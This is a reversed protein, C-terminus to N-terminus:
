LKYFEFQHGRLLLNIVQGTSSCWKPNPLSIIESNYYITSGLRSSGHNGSHIKRIIIYKKGQNFFILIELVM